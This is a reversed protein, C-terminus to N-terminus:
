GLSCDVVVKNLAHELVALEEDLQAVFLKSIRRAHIPATESLRGIGAESLWWSVMPTTGARDRRVLGEDVLCAVRRGMGSLTSGWDRARIAQMM